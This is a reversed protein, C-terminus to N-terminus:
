PQVLEGEAEDDLQTVRVEANVGGAASVRCVDGEEVDDPCEVTVDRTGTDQEVGAALDREITGVDTGSDDGCGAFLALAVAVVSYRARGM